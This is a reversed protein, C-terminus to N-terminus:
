PPSRLWVQLAYVCRQCLDYNPIETGGATFFVPAGHSTYGAPFAEVRLAAGDPAKLGCRDCVYEITKMSPEEDGVRCRITIAKM